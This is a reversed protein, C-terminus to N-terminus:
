LDHEGLMSPSQFVLNECNEVIWEGNMKFAYKVMDKDLDLYNSCDKSFLTFLRRFANINGTIRQNMYNTPNFGASDILYGSSQQSLMLDVFDLNRNFKSCASLLNIRNIPNITQCQYENTMMDIFLKNRDKEAQSKSKKFLTSLTLDRATLHGPRILNEIFGINITM